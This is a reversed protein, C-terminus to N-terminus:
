SRGGGAAADRLQTVTVLYGSVRGWGSALRTAAVQGSAQIILCARLGAVPERPLAFSRLLGWRRLWQHWAAAATVDCALGAQSVERDAQPRIGLLLFESM